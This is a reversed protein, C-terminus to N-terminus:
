MVSKFLMLTFLSVSILSRLFALYSKFDTINLLGFLAEPHIAAARTSSSSPLYSSALFISWYAQWFNSSLSSIQSSAALNLGGWFYFDIRALAIWYIGFDFFSQIYAAFFSSSDCWFASSPIFFFSSVRLFASSCIGFSNSIQFSAM